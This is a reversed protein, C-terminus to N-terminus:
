PNCRTVLGMLIIVVYPVIDRAQSKGLTSFLYRQLFCMIFMSIFFHFILLLPNYSVPIQAAASTLNTWATVALPLTFNKGATYIEGNESMQKYKIM